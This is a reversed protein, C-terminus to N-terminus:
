LDGEERAALIEDAADLADLAELSPTVSCPAYEVSQVLREEALHVDELANRLQVRRWEYDGPLTLSSPFWGVQGNLLGEWWGGPEGQQTVEIIDGERFGLQGADPNPFNYTAQVHSPQDHAPYGAHQEERYHHSQQYQAFVTGLRQDRIPHTRLDSSTPTFAVATAAYCAALRARMRFYLNDAQHIESPHDGTYREVWLRISLEVCVAVAVGSLRSYM